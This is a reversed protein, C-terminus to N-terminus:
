KDPESVPAGPNCEASLAENPEGLMAFVIDNTGSLPAENWPFAKSLQLFFLRDSNTSQVRGRVKRQLV